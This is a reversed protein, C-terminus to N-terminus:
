LATGTTENLKYIHTLLLCNFSTIIFVYMILTYLIIISVHICVDFRKAVDRDTYCIKFYTYM